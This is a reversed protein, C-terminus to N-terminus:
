TVIGALPIDVVGDAAQWAAVCREVDAVSRVVAWQGGNDIIDAGCALQKLSVRGTASKVEFAWFQGRWFVEIDPWGPRMGMAKARCQAIAKSKRDGGINMENPSHHIVAGPLKWQLWHLCALHIPGERDVRPKRQKQQAAKFDAATIRSTV